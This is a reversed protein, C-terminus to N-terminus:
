PLAYPDFRDAASRQANFYALEEGRYACSSGQPCRTRVFEKIAQRAEARREARGVSDWLRLTEQKRRELSIRPDSWLKQLRATAQEGSLEADGGAPARELRARLEATRELFWRRESRFPDNGAAREALANLDFRLGRAYRDKFRVQGDPEIVANIGNGVFSYSGDPHHDLKPDPSRSLARNRQGEALYADLRAGTMPSNDIGARRPAAPAPVPADNLVEAALANRAVSGPSL